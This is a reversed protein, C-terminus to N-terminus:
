PDTRVATGSMYESPSGDAPPFTAIVITNGDSSVIGSMSDGPGDGFHIECPSDKAWQWTSSREPQVYHVGVNQENIAAFLTLTGSPNIGFYALGSHYNGNPKLGNHSFAYTGGLNARCDAHAPLGALLLVTVLSLTTCIYM